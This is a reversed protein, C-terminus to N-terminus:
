VLRINPLTGSQMEPGAGQMRCCNFISEWCPTGLHATQKIIWDCASIPRSGERVNRGKLRSVWSIQLLVFQPYIFSRGRKLLFIQKKQKASALLSVNLNEFITTTKKFTPMQFLVGSM